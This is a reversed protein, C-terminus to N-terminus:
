ERLLMRVRINRFRALKEGIFHKLMRRSRSGHLSRLHPSFPRFEHPDRESPIARRAPRSRWHKLHAAEALVEAADAGDVIAGERDLAARDGRQDARVAGALGGDEVADLVICGVAPSTQSSPSRMSRSRGCWTVRRAEAAGELDAAVEFVQRHQLIEDHLRAGRSQRSRKPGATM